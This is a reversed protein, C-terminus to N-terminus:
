RWWVAVVVVWQVAVVVVVVVVVCQVAVVDVVVHQLNDCSLLETTFTQAAWEGTAGDV